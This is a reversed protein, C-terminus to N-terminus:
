SLKKLQELFQKSDDQPYLAFDVLYEHAKQDPPIKCIFGGDFAWYASGPRSTLDIKSDTIAKKVVFAVEVEKSGVSQMFKNPQSEAYLEYDNRLGEASKPFGMEDIFSIGLYNAHRRMDEETANTAMKIAEIRNLRKKRDIEAQRLPNWEFFTNRKYGKRHPNDLNANSKNLFDIATQDYDPLRLVRRQFVLTRRNAKIFDETLAKQDELYISPFGRLLRIREMRQKSENWVDDIGEMHFDGNKNVDSLKYVKFTSTQPTSSQTASQSEEHQHSEPEDQFVLSQDSLSASKTKAM